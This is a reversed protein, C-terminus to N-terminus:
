FFLSSNIKINGSFGTQQLRQGTARDYVYAGFIYHHDIRNPVLVEACKVNKHFEELRPDDQHIWWIANIMDFDLKKLGSPYPYFGAYNCSANRDTIVVGPLSLVDPNIRLVCINTNHDRVKSLMPNHADFYLNAYSHLLKGGPVIKNKRRDQIEPMAIAHSEIGRKKRLRYSLIGYEMVSPINPIPMINYLEKIAM